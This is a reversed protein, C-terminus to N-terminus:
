YAEDCDRVEVERVRFAGEDEIRLATRFRETTGARIAKVSSVIDWGVTLDGADKAVLTCEGRAAQSGENSMSLDIEITARDLPRFRRVSGSFPVDNDGGGCSALLLAGLFTAIRVRAPDRTATTARM